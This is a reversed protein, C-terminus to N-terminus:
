QNVKTAGIELMRTQLYKLDRNPIKGELPSLIKHVISLLQNSSM